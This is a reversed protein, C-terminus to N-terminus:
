RASSFFLWMVIVALLCASLTGLRRRRDPRTFTPELTGAGIVIAAHVMTAALVYVLTLTINGGKGASETSLFNPLVTMYFVAAKPNLLNTVLGRRFYVWRSDNPFLGTLQSCSEKWADWALYLLFLMGAWRLLEYLFVGESIIVALGAAALLGMALLGLSIGAVAAFGDRRGRKATMIALWGMNPGPTLEIAMSAVFFAVIDSLPVEFM